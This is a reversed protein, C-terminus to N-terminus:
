ELNSLDITLSPSMSSGIAVAKIKKINITKFTAELNELLKEKGFSKKGIVLHILPAKKETKYEISKNDFAQAAKEPEAVITNNKPNPMLGKPGLIKAYRAIKGMDEKKALLIDFNIKKNKIDEETQENFIAVRKTKGNGHPLAIRGTLAEEKKLVVNLEISSDFKEKSLTLLKEVAENLDYKKQKQASKKLAKFKKSRVKIKRAKKFTKKDESTSDEVTKDSNGAEKKRLAELEAFGDTTDFENDKFQHKNEYQLDQQLDQVEEPERNDIIIAKEGM